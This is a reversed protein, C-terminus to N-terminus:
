VRRVATGNERVGKSSHRLRRVGFVGDGLREEDGPAPEGIRRSWGVGNKGPQVGDSSSHEGVLTPRVVTPRPQLEANALRGGHDTRDAVVILVSGGDSGQRAQARIVLFQQAQNGPFFQTMRLDRDNQPDRRVRHRDTQIARPSTEFVFECVVDLLIM